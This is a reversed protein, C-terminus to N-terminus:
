NGVIYDMNWEAVIYIIYDPQKATIDSIDYTYGWMSKYWTTNMREALIDYVQTGFSDRMVIASPLEPRNTRITNSSTVADSYVLQTSARYRSVNTVGSPVTVGDAFTRYWSYELIDSETITKSNYTNVTMQLYYLMDGTKYLGGKWKFDTVPRPAASPFEKSIYDFLECYAIYGGYDSWHSDCKFYLPYADNKHEAFAERLDIAVAGAKNIANVVQEYRSTKGVVAYDDPVLEPYVSMSAPVIMYIIETNPSATQLTEIRRELRTVFRDIEYQSYSNTRQYDPLMKQFFFQYDSGAVVGWMESGPTVPRATYKLEAGVRAGNITQTITLDVSSDPCYIRVSYWGYWSESSVSGYKSDATVTAGIDCKGVIVAYPKESYSCKRVTVRCEEPSVSTEDFGSVDVDIPGTSPFGSSSQEGDESIDTSEAPESSDGPDSTDVASGSVGDSVDSSESSAASPEESAGGSVNDSAECSVLLVLLVAIALFLAKKM